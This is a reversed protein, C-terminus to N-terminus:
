REIAIGEGWTMVVLPHDYGVERSGGFRESGEKREYTLWYPERHDITHGLENEHGTIVLRPDVGEVLRVIDTTWCNPMLVTVDHHEAVTDIWSFDDSNSQDGTQMFGMGEDTLVLTVNNEIDDGQHGPYVVVKLSRIGDALPLSQVAHAARELHTLESQIPRNSWIGPPAVVPKGADLFAQAVWEDAHDRHYHSIFLADCRDVIQQMRENSVAFGDVGVSHGRVLDYAFTVSPTRIVFAHNYLKWVIAGSGVTTESMRNVADEMRERFFRQVPERAPAHVDHLIGDLLYLAQKREISEVPSPPNRSLGAWVLDLQVDAQRDLFANQTDNLRPDPGSTGSVPDADGGFFLSTLVGGILGALLGLGIIAFTKKMRTAGAPM